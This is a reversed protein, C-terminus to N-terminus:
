KNLFVFLIFMFFIVNKKGIRFDGPLRLAPEPQLYCFFLVLAAVISLRIIRKKKLFLDLKRIGAEEIHNNEPKKWDLRKRM